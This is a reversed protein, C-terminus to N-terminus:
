VFPELTSRDGCNSCGGSIQNTTECLCWQRTATLQYDSFTSEVVRLGRQTFDNEFEFRSSLSAPGDCSDSANWTWLNYGTGLDQRFSGTCSAALAGATRYGAGITGTTAGGGSNGVIPASGFAEVNAGAFMERAAVFPFLLGLSTPGRGATQYQVPWQSSDYAGVGLTEGASEFRYLEAGNSTENISIYGALFEPLVSIGMNSPRCLVFVFQAATSTFLRYGNSVTFLRQSSVTLTVNETMARADRCYDARFQGNVCQAVYRPLCQWSSDCCQPHSGVCCCPAGGADTVLRRSLTRLKRDIALLKPM